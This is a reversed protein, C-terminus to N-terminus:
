YFDAAPAVGIPTFIYALRSSDVVVITLDYFSGVTITTRTQNLSSLQPLVDEGFAAVADASLTYLSAGIGSLLRAPTPVAGATGETRVIVAAVPDFASGEPVIRVETDSSVPGGFTGDDSIALPIPTPVEDEILLPLQLNIQTIFDNVSGKFSEESIESTKTTTTSETTTTPDQATPSGDTNDSCASGLLMVLTALAIHKRM